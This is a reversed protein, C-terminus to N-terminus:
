VRRISVLEYHTEGLVGDKPLNKISITNGQNGGLVRIKDGGDGLWFGVHGGSGSPGHRRFVVVDGERPHPTGDDSWNQWSLAAKSDTGHLGAQEVCYNVFSL